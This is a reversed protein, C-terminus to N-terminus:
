RRQMAARREAVKKQYLEFKSDGILKKIEADKETNVKQMSARMAERDGSNMSAQRMEVQKKAYKLQLDYLKQEMAKELALEKVMWESEAKATEEPTRQQRQGQGQGQQAFTITVFFSMMVITLLRIKNNMNIKNINKYCKSM